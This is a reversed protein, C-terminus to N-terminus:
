PREPHISIDDVLVEVPWRTKLETVLEQLARQRCFRQYDRGIRDRVAEFPDPIPERRDTVQYLYIMGEELLPGIITEEEAQRFLEFVPGEQGEMSVFGIDGGRGSGIPDESLEDAAAAFQREGRQLREKLTQLQAHKDAIDDDDAPDLRLGIRRFRLLLPSSFRDIHSDYFAKLEQESNLPECRAILRNELRQLYLTQTDDDGEPRPIGRREGERLMLRDTIILDLLWMPGGPLGLYNVLLPSRRAFEIIDRETIPEGDVTAVVEAPTVALDAAETNVNRTAGTLLALFLLLLRCGQVIGGPLVQVAPKM